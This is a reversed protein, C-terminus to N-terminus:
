TGMYVNTLEGIPILKDQPVFFAPRGGAPDQWYEPRKAEAGTIYGGITYTGNRGTVHIFVADDPDDKHVILDYHDRSRTRVQLPGVDPMDLRGINGNWYLGLAKAVACEGMAGEIHLQWGSDFPAGHADRRDKKVNQVQRMVGVNAAMMMEYTTLTIEMTM